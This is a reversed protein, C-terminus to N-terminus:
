GRKIETKKLEMIFENLDKKQAYVANQPEAFPFESKFFETAKQGATDNDFFTKISSYAGKKIMEAAKETFSVSNLILYNEDKKLGLLTGYSLFDLMGEFCVIKRNGETTKVLSISKTNEPVTGKFYPNRIEYGGKTNELGAAFFHKGDQATSYHIEKLFKSALCTDIGREQTIYRSLANGTHGSPFIKVEKLIFSETKDEQKKTAFLDGTKLDKNTTSKAKGFEKDLFALAGKVDTGMVKM